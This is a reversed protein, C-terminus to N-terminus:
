GLGICEACIKNAKSVVDEMGGNIVGVVIFTVIVCVLACKFCLSAIKHWNKPKTVNEVTEKVDDTIKTFTGINEKIECVGEDIEKNNLEQKIVEIEKKVSRKCIYATAVLYLLPGIFFWLISLWGNGVEANINKNTADFNNFIYVFSSISAILVFVLSSIIMSFRIIRQREIIDGGKNSLLKLKKYLRNLVIREDVNAHLRKDEPPYVVSLIDGFLVIAITIYVFVSIKAFHRGISESTFPNPGENYIDVCMVAFLVAVGVLFVSLIIGYILRGLNKRSM